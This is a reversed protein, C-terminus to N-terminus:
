SFPYSLESTSLATLGSHTFLLQSDCLRPRVVPSVQEWVYGWGWKGPLRCGSWLVKQRARQLPPNSKCWGDPLLFIPRWVKIAKKNNRTVCLFIMWFMLLQKSPTHELPKPIPHKESKILWPTEELPAWSCWCHQLQNLLLFSRELRMKMEMLVRDSVEQRLWNGDMYLKYMQNWFILRQRMWLPTSCPSSGRKNKM